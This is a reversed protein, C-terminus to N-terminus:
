GAQAEAGLKFTVKRVVVEGWVGACWRGPSQVAGRGKEM